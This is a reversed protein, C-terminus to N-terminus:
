LKKIPSRYTNDDMLQKQIDCLRKLTNVKQTISREMSSKRLLIENTKESIIQTLKIPEFPVKPLVKNTITGKRKLNFFSASNDQNTDFNKNINELLM